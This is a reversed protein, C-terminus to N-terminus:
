ENNEVILDIMKKSLFFYLGKFYAAFFQTM